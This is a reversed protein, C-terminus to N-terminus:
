SAGGLLALVSKRVRAEEVELWARLQKCESDNAIALAVAEEAVALSPREPAVRDLYERLKSARLAGFRIKGSLFLSITEQYTGLDKAIASQAGHGIARAHERLREVLRAHEADSISSAKM